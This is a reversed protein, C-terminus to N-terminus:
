VDDLVSGDRIVSLRGLVDQHIWEGQDFPVGLEAARGALRSFVDRPDDRCSTVYDEGSRGYGLWESIASLAGSEYSTEM